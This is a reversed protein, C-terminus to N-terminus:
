VGRCLWASRRNSAILRRASFRGANDGQCDPRGACRAAPAPMGAADPLYLDLHDLPPYALELLWTRQADPNAPRYHLDIKLWFASRSYGANLTTKDHPKFAGAASQALVEDITATGAADEFVQLAHGLPLSQTFEDFELASALSPLCLLLMLLYRM